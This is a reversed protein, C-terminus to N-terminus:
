LEMSDILFRLQRIVSERIETKPCHMRTGEVKKQICMGTCSPLMECSLCTENEFNSAAFYKYYNKNPHFTGEASIVGVSHSEDKFDRATCKYVKLDYNIVYQNMNEAYCWSCVTPLSNARTKYGLSHFTEMKHAIVDTIANINDKFQWVLQPEIFIKHRIDEAFSVAISDITHLNTPTYNIRVTVLVDTIGRCILSINKVICDYSGTRDHSFRTRDHFKKAGDLTIQFSRLAIENMQPILKEAIFFGNTTISNTFNVNKEECYDKIAISIPYVVDDFHLLPEGGFWDLVFSKLGRSDILNKCFVIVSQVSDGSMYGEIHTEYCYWCRFNCNLTPMITIRATTNSFRFTKNACIILSEEQLDDECILHSNQLDILLDSDIIREIEGNILAKNLEYDIERLDSSLQNFVYFREHESLYINYRSPKM